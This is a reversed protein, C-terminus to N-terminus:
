SNPKLLPLIHVSSGSVHVQIPPPLINESLAAASGIASTIKDWHCTVKGHGRLSFFSRNTTSGEVDCSIFKQMAFVFM